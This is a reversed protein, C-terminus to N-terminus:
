LLTMTATECVATVFIPRDGCADFLRRLIACVSATDAVLHEALHIRPPHGCFGRDVDGQVSLFLRHFM